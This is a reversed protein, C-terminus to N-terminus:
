PATKGAGQRDRSRFFRRRIRVLTILTMVSPIALVGLVWGLPKRPPIDWLEITSAEYEIIPVALTKGDPSIAGDVTPLKIAAVKHGTETDLIALQSQSELKRKGLNRVGLLRACWQLFFGAEWDNGSPVALLHTGPIPVPNNLGGSKPGYSAPSVDTVAFEKGSNADCFRVRDQNWTVFGKGDPLFEDFFEEAKFSGKQKGTTLDWLEVRIDMARHDMRRNIALTRGDHSLAPHRVRVWDHNFTRSIEGTATDLVLVKADDALKGDPNTKIVTTLFTKGDHSFILEHFYGYDKGKFHVRVRGTAADLLQLEGEHNWYKSYALTKGDPSFCLHTELDEERKVEITATERGSALDFLIYSSDIYPKIPFVVEDVLDRQSLYVVNPLITKDASGVAGLCRGTNVDWLRYFQGPENADPEVATVIARGDPSFGMLYESTETELDHAPIVFRPQVPVFWVIVWALLWLLVSVVLSLKPWSPKHETMETPSASSDDM